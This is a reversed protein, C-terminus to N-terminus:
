ANARAGTGVSNTKLKTGVMNTRAWKQVASKAYLYTGNSLKASPDIFRGAARAKNVFQWNRGIMNAVDQTDIYTGKTKRTPISDSYHM